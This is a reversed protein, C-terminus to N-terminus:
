CSGHAQYISELVRVACVIEDIGYSAVLRLNISEVCLDVTEAFLIVILLSLIILNKSVLVLLNVAEMFGKLFTLILRSRLYRGSDCVELRGYDEM